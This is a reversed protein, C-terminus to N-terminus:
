AARAFSAADAPVAARTGGGTNPVGLQDRLRTVTRDLETVPVVAFVFRDPRLIAVAKDRFGAKAFWAIMNGDIDEVEPAGGNRNDREVGEARRVDEM